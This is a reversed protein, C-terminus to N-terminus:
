NDIPNLPKMKKHVSVGMEYAVPECTYYAGHTLCQHRRWYGDARRYSTKIKGYAGCDPCGMLNVMGNPEAKRGEGETPSQSTVQLPLGEIQVARFHNRCGDYRCKYFYLRTRQNTDTYICPADRGCRPCALTDSM